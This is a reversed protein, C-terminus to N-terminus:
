SIQKTLAKKKCKKESLSYTRNAWFEVIVHTKHWPFMLILYELEGKFMRKEQSDVRGNRQCPSCHLMTGSLTSSITASRAGSSFSSPASNEETATPLMFQCLTGMESIILIGPPLPVRTDLCTSLMYWDRTGIELM